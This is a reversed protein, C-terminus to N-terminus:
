VFVKVLYPGIINFVLLALSIITLAHWLKKALNKNKVKNEFIAGMMRGGDIPGLPLLNILGIGINLVIMWYLLQSIYFVIWPFKGYKEELGAALGISQKLQIGLHAKTSDSPNEITKINYQSKDTVVQINEGPSVKSLEDMFGSSSNILNGNVSIIIEGKQVGALEAPFGKTVGEVTLGNPAFVHGSIPAMVFSVLLMCVVATVINAFPGAAFISLQKKLPLRTLEKEDPEVFALPIFAFFGVGASKVKVKHIESIIGHAGEHVILVVILSIIGYWFPVFISSGPVKVGPLVIGISPAALPHLFIDIVKYGLYGFIFALGIFCIPIGIYGFIRWFRPSWGAVKRIIEVPKKSRYLFFIFNQVSVNKRNIIFFLIVIAYFAVISVINWDIAM